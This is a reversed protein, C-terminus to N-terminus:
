LQKERRILSRDTPRSNKLTIRGGYNKTILCFIMLKTIYRMALIKDVKSGGQLRDGLSREKRKEQVVLHSFKTKM